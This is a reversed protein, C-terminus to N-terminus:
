KLKNIFKAVQAMHQKLSDIEAQMKAIKQNLTQIEAVGVGVASSVAEGVPASQTVAANVAAEKRPLRAKAMALKIAEILEKQEFPKLIFEFYEFPEQIKEMVEEKRGSMLVLPVKQLDANAQIHQFVEWGSVKPLLFDLMILNPHEQRILNLGELGDKAELVEFNGPPLMERVRTRIVRSDDIVLIKRSAM